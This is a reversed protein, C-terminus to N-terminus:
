LQSRFVDTIRLSDFQREIVGPKLRTILRRHYRWVTEVTKSHQFFGSFRNQRAHDPEVGRQLRTNILSEDGVFQLLSAIM